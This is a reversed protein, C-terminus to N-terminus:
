PKILEAILKIFSAVSLLLGIFIFTLTAKPYSSWQQDLYAGIFAGGVIPVCITFGVQSVVGIYFWPSESMERHAKKESKKKDKTTFTLEEKVDQKM